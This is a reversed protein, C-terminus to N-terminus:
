SEGTGPKVYFLCCPLRETSGYWTEGRTASQGWRTASETTRHVGTLFGRAILGRNTGPRPAICHVFSSSFMASTEGQNARDFALGVIAHPFQPPLV